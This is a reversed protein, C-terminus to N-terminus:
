RIKTVRVIKVFYLGHKYGLHNLRFFKPSHFLYRIYVTELYDEIPFGKKRLKDRINRIHS